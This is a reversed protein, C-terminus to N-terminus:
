GLNNKIVKELYKKWQMYIVNESFVEASYKANESILKKKVPNDLLEKIARVLSSKDGVPILIGNEKNCILMRSGGCPCDTAISPVGVALAEMLANSMGEYDSTLVFIDAESLKLPVDLAQGELSIVGDMGKEMILNNLENELVGEGYIRLKLEPYDDKLEAVANILLKQNKQKSLRGVTVILQDVPKREVRYFEQKVANFIITSKRQMRVPFWQKADETQFVCGDAMPLLYKGVFKMILGAYERNPDNRVSVVTRVSLGITAVIARFNPEGMFAILVDPKEKKCLRRLKLIRSINRKVKSQKIETKELSYRKIKESLLYEGNTRFSTVFIVDYGDDAFQSALNTMVREAGDRKITNIYFMIKKM